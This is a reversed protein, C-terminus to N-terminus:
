FPKQHHFHIEQNPNPVLVNLLVVHLPENQEGEIIGHELM